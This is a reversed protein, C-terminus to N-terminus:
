LFNLKDNILIGLNYMYNLIKGNIKGNIKHMLNIKIRIIRKLNISYVKTIKNKHNAIYNSTQNILSNKNSTLSIKVIRIKKIIFSEM